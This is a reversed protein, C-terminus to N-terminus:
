FIKSWYTDVLQRLDIKLYTLLVVILILFLLIKILGASKNPQSSHQNLNKM